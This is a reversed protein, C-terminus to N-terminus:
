LTAAVFTAAVFFVSSRKSGSTQSLLVVLTLIILGCVRLLPPDQIGRIARVVSGIAPRTPAVRYKAFKRSFGM